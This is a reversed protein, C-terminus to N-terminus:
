IYKRHVNIQHKSIQSLFIFIELQVDIKRMDDFQVAYTRAHARVCEARRGKQKYKTSVIFNFFQTSRARQIHQLLIALTEIRQNSWYSDIYFYFFFCVSHLMRVMFKVMQCRRITFAYIWLLM